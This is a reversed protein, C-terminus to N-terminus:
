SSDKFWLMALTVVSFSETFVASWHTKQFVCQKFDNRMVSVWKLWTNSILMVLTYTARVGELQEAGTVDNTTCQSTREFATCRVISPYSEIAMENCETRHTTGGCTHLVIVIIYFVM